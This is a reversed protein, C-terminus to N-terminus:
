REAEVPDLVIVPIQRRKVQREYAGFFPMTSTHVRLLREREAGESTRARATFREGDAEVTAIPDALLNHYWDPHTPSGGKSAMVIYRDGDRSYNLPTVRARGTRAGKTTLLLIPSKRSPVHGGNKRFQEIVPRNMADWDRKEPM